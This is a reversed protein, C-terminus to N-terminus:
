LRAIDQKSTCTALFCMLVYCSTFCNVGIREGGAQLKLRNLTLSNPRGGELVRFSIATPRMGQMRFCGMQRGRGGGEGVGAGQARSTGVFLLVELLM